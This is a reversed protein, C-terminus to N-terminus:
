KIGLPPDKTKEREIRKMEFNWDGQKKKKKRKMRRIKQKKWTFHKLIAAQTSPKWTKNEQTPQVLCNSGSNRSGKQLWGETQTETKARKAKMGRVKGHTKTKTKGVILAEPYNEFKTLVKRFEKWPMLVLIIKREKEEKKLSDKLQISQSKEGM